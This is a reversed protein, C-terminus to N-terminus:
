AKATQRRPPDVDQAIAEIDDQDLDVPTPKGGFLTWLLAVRGEPTMEQVTAIFGAGVGTLMKVRDGPQYRDHKKHTADFRGALEAEHIDRVMDASLGLPEAAGLFAIVGEIKRVVSFQPKPGPLYAFMYGPLLPQRLRQRRGRAPTHWVVEHPVYTDVDKDTLRAQIRVELGTVVNVVYWARDQGPRQTDAKLDSM